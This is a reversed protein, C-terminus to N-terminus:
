PTHVEPARRPPNIGHEALTVALKATYEREQDLKRNLQEIKRDQADARKDAKELRALLNDVFKEDAELERVKSTAETARVGAKMDGYSKVISTVMATIGSGSLASILAIIIPESM